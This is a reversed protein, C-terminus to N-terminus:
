DKLGKMLSVLRERAEDKGVPPVHAAQTTHSTAENDWPLPLLTDPTLRNKVHPQITITALMRMREWGDHMAMEHSTAYSDAVATWEEPTLGQWDRLTLEVAGLAFGLQETICFSKKESETNHPLFVLLLLVAM